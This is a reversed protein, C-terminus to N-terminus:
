RAGEFGWIQVQCALTLFLIVQLIANTIVTKVVIYEQEEYPCANTDAFVGVGM